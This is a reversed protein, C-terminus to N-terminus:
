DFTNPNIFLNYKTIQFNVGAVDIDETLIIKCQALIHMYFVYDKQFSKNSFGNAIVKDLTDRNLNKM